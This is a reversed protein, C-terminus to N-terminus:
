NVQESRDFFIEVSWRVGCCVSEASPLLNLDTGTPRASSSRKGLQLVSAPSKLDEPYFVDGSRLVDIAIKTRQRDTSSCRM